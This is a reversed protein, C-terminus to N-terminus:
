AALDDLDIRLAQAIALLTPLSGNRRGSEIDGIYKKSRGVAGALEDLSLGRHTRWVRVASEGSMLRDVIEGPVLEENRTARYAIIAELEEIRDKLAEYEASTLTVSDTDQPAAVM